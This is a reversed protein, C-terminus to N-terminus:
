TRRGIRNARTTTRNKKLNLFFTLIGFEIVSWNMKYQRNGRRVLLFFVYIYIDIRPDKFLNGSKKNNASKNITCM